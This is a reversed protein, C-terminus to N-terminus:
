EFPSRNMNALIKRLSNRLQEMEKDSFGEVAREYQQSAVNIVKDLTQRGKELLFVDTVRQDSQRPACKVLGENRMREIVRSITSLKKNCRHSLESVSSPDDERLSLLIQWRAREVKISRLVKEMEVGYQHDVHNILYFLYRDLSFNDSAPNDQDLKNNKAM